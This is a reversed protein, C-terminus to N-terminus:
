FLIYNVRKKYKTDKGVLIYASWMKVTTDGDGLCQKTHPLHEDHIQPM